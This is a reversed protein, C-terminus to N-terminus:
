PTTLVALSTRQDGMLEDAGARETGQPPIVPIPYANRRSFVGGATPRVYCFEVAIDYVPLDSANKIIAGYEFQQGNPTLPVEWQTCWVAV